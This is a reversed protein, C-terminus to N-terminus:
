HHDILRKKLCIEVAKRGYIAPELNIKECEALLDAKMKKSLRVLVGETYRKIKSM